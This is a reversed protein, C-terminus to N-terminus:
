NKCINLLQKKYEELYLFYCEISIVGDRLAELLKERTTM